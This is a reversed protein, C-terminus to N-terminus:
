KKMIFFQIFNDHINADKMETFITIPAAIGAGIVFGIPIDIQIPDTVQMHQRWQALWLEVVSLILGLDVWLCIRTEGYTFYIHIPLSIMTFLYRFSVFNVIIITLLEM